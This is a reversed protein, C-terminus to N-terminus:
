LKHEFSSECLDMNRRTQRLCVTADSITPDLVSADFSCMLDEMDGKATETQEFGFTSTRM